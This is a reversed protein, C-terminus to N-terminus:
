DWRWARLILRLIVYMWDCCFFCMIKDMIQGFKVYRNWLFVGHAALTPPPLVRSQLHLEMDAPLLHQGGCHNHQWSEQWWVHSGLPQLSTNPVHGYSPLRPDSGSSNSVLARIWYLTTMKGTYSIGNHLYSSRLITKDGFHSKRYQYSTLKINFWGGGGGGLLIIYSM